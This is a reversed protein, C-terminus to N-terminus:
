MGYQSGFDSGDADVLDWKWWRWWEGSLLLEELCSKAHAWGVDSDHVQPHGELRSLLLGEYCAWRACGRQKEGTPRGPYRQHLYERTVDLLENSTSVFIQHPRHNMIWWLIVCSDDVDVVPIKKGYTGPHHCLDSLWGCFFVAMRGKRAEPNAEIGASIEEVSRPNQIFEDEITVKSSVAHVREQMSCSSCWCQFEREDTVAADELFCTWWSSLTTPHSGTNQDQSTPRSHNGSSSPLFRWETRPEIVQRLWSNSLVSQLSAQRHYQRSNGGPHFVYSEANKLTRLKPRLSFARRMEWFPAITLTSVSVATRLIGWDLTLLSWSGPM